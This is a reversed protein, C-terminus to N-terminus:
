AHQHPSERVGLGRRVRSGQFRQFRQFGPVTPVEPIRKLTAVDSLEDHGRPRAADARRPRDARAHPATSILALELESLFEDNGDSRDLVMTAARKRAPRHGPRSPEHRDADARRAHAEAAEPDARPRRVARSRCAASTHAPTSSPAWTRRHLPGRGRRAASGARPSAPAPARSIRLRRIFGPFQHGQRRTGRSSSAGRSRSAAARASARRLFSPTSNGAEADRRLGDM